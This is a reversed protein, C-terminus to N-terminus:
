PGLPVFLPRLAIGVPDILGFFLADALDPKRADMGVDAATIGVVRKGMNRQAPDHGLRLVAPQSVLGIGQLLAFCGAVLVSPKVIRAMAQGAVVAVARPFNVFEAVHAEGPTAVILDLDRHHLDVLAGEFAYRGLGMGVGRDAKGGLVRHHGLVTADKRECFAGVFRRRVRLRSGFRLLPNPIEDPPPAHSIERRHSRGQVERRVRKNTSQRTRILKGRRKPGDGIEDSQNTGDEGAYEVRPEVRIRAIGAVEQDRGGDNGSQHQQPPPM